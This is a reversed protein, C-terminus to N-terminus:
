NRHWQMSKSKVNEPTVNQLASKYLAFSVDRSVKPSGVSTAGIITVDGPQPNPNSKPTYQKVAIKLADNSDRTARAYERIHQCDVVHETINFPSSEMKHSLSNLLLLDQQMAVTRFRAM